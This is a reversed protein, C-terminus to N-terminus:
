RGGPNRKKKIIEIVKANKFNPTGNKLLVKEEILQKLIIGRKKSRLEKSTYGLSILVHRKTIAPEKRQVKTQLLKEYAESWVSRSVNRKSKLVDNDSEVFDARRQVRAPDPAYFGGKSHDLKRAM